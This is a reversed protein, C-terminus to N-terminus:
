EAIGPPRSARNSQRAVMPGLLGSTASTSQFSTSVVSKGEGKRTSSKAEALNELEDSTGNREERGRGIGSALAAGSSGGASDNTSVKATGDPQSGGGGGTSGASGRDKDQNNRVAVPRLLNSAASTSQFTSVVSGGQRRSGPQKREADGGAATGGAGISAAGGHTGASLHDTGGGAGVGGSGGSDAVPLNRAAVPRLLNSAASQSQFGSVVTRAEGCATSTNKRGKTADAAGGRPGLVGQVPAGEMGAAAGAARAAVAAAVDVSQTSMAQPHSAIPGQQESVSKPLQLECGEEGEQSNPAPLKEPASGPEMTCCSVMPRSAMQLGKAVLVLPVAWLSRLAVGCSEAADPQGGHHVADIRKPLHARETYGEVMTERVVRDLEDPDPPRPSRPPVDTQPRVPVVQELGVMWPAQEMEFEDLGGVEYASVHPAAACMATTSPLDM